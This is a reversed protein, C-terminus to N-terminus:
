PAGTLIEDAAADAAVAAVAAAKRSADLARWLYWSAVSRYPKWRVARAELVARAPLDRKKFVVSFGKRIGYDDAPLVDPRGLRFMLLMEVTWRGIGRVQTLREIVTEDDMQQVEALTPLDGSVTREALDRLALLKARSLGAARLRADSCRAIQEATPGEHGRPLLACVRAFITAAAKGTLQQYVIARALAGFMTAARDIHMRYPGVADIARALVPDASRLHALAAAADYDYGGGEDLISLSQPSIRREISLIRMKTTAGGHASFGGLGRAGLVRHCPVVIAFPNRGLAQGVARAGGIAGLRAALEGYSLTAGAEIARAAEYVRRHFPPVGAMDLAIAGLEQRGGALLAVIGDIAAQIDPPPPAPRANPVASLRALLRARTDAEGAGPLEVAAVGRATWAIGCRGISTDFLAFGQENM